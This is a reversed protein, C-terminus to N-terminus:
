ALGRYRLVARLLAHSRERWGRMGDALSLDIWPLGAAFCRARTDGHQFAYFALQHGPVQGRADLNYLAAQVAEPLSAIAYRHPPCRKIFNYISARSPARVGATRARSATKAVLTEIAPREQDHLLRVLERQVVPALRSKGADSRRRRPSPKGLRRAARDLSQKLDFM